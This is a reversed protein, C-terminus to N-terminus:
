KTLQLVIIVLDNVFKFTQHIEGIEELSGHERRLKEIRRLLKLKEWWEPGQFLLTTIGFKLPLYIMRSWM